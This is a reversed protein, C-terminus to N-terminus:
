RTVGSTSKAGAADAPRVGRLIGQPGGSAAGIPQASHVTSVNGARDTVELRLYTRAPLRQSLTWTYSGTNPMEGEIMSWPGQLTPAYSLRIPADSLHADEARWRIHVTPLPQEDAVEVGVLEAQPPTWDLGIWLDPADGPQPPRASSGDQNHILMRFGYTGENDLEVLFPSRVDADIGYPHWTSGRDHTVWLEVRAVPQPGNGSVDYDLNFRRSNTMHVATGPPPEDSLVRNAVPPSYRDMPPDPFAANDPAAPLSPSANL